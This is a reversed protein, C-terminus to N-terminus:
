LAIETKRFEFILEHKELLYNKQKELMEARKQEIMELVDKRNPDFQYILESMENDFLYAEEELKFLYGMQHFLPLLHNTFRSCFFFIKGSQIDEIPLFKIALLFADRGKYVECIGYDPSAILTSLNPYNELNDVVKKLQENANIKSVLESRTIKEM